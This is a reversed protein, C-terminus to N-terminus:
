PETKSDIYQLVDENWTLRQGDESILVTADESMGASLLRARLKLSSANEELITCSFKGPYGDEIYFCLSVGEEDFEGFYLEYLPDSEGEVYYGWHGVIRTSIDGGSGCGAVMLSIVLMLAIISLHKTNM